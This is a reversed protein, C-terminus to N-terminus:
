NLIGAALGVPRVLWWWSSTPSFSFFAAKLSHKKHLLSPVQTYNAFTAGHLNKGSQWRLFWAM